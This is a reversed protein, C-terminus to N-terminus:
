NNILIKFIVFPFLHTLTGARVMLGFGSAPKPRVTLSFRM